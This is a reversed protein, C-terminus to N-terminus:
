GGIYKHLADIALLLAYVEISGVVLGVVAGLGQLFLM